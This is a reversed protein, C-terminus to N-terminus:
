TEPNVSDVVWDGQSMCEGATANPQTFRLRVFRLELDPNEFPEAAKWVFHYPKGRHTEHFVHQKKGSDWEGFTRMKKQKKDWMKVQLQVLYQDDQGTCPNGFNRQVKLSYGKLNQWDRHTGLDPSSLYFDFSKVNSGAVLLPNAGACLENNRNSLSFGITPSIKTMQVDNTDYLQDISWGQTTGDDFRFAYPLFVEMERDTDIMEKASLSMVTVPKDFNIWYMVDNM